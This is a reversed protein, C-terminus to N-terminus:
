GFDGISLRENMELKENRTFSFETAFTLQGIGGLSRPVQRFNVREQVRRRWILSKEYSFRLQIMTKPLVPSGGTGAPLEGSPIPTATSGIPFAEEWPQEACNGRRTWKQFAAPLSAGRRKPNPARALGSGPTLGQTPRFDLAGHGSREAPL